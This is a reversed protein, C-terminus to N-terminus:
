FTIQINDLWFVHNMLRDSNTKKGQSDQSIELGDNLVAFSESNSKLRKDYSNQTTHYLRTFYM